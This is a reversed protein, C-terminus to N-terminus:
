VKAMLEKSVLSFYAMVLYFYELNAALIILINPIITIVTIFNVLVLSILLIIWTYVHHPSPGDKFHGQYDPEVDQQPTRILYLSNTFGLSKIDM